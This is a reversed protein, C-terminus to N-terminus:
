RQYRDIYQGLKWEFHRRTHNENIVIKDDPDYDYYVPIVMKNKEDNEVLIEHLTICQNIPVETMDWIDYYETEGEENLMELNGYRDISIVPATLTKVCGYREYRVSLVPAEDDTFKIPLYLIIDECVEKHLDSLRTRYDKM